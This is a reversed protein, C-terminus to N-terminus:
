SSSFRPGGRGRASGWEGRGVHAEEGVSETDEVSVAM